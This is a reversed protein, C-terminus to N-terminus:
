LTMAHKPILVWPLAVAVAGLLLRRRRRRRRSADVLVLVISFLNAISTAFYLRTMLELHPSGEWVKRKGNEMASEFCLGTMM